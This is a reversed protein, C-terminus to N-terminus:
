RTSKQNMLDMKFDSSIRAIQNARLPAVYERIAGNKAKFRM